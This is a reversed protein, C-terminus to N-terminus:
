TRPHRHATWPASAPKTAETATRKAVDDTELISPLLVAALGGIIGIVILLEILTFGAQTNKISM